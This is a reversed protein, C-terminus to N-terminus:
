AVPLGEHGYGSFDERPFLGALIEDRTEPKM